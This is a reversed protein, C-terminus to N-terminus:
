LTNVVDDAFTIKVRRNPMNIKANVDESFRAPRLDSPDTRREVRPRGRSQAGTAYILSRRAPGDRDCASVGSERIKRICDDAGKGTAPLSPWPRNAVTGAVHRDCPPSPRSRYSVSSRANRGLDRRRCTVAPWSRRAMLLGDALTLAPRYSAAGTVAFRLDPATVARHLVCELSTMGTQDRDGVASVRLGTAM